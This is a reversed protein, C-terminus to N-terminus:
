ALLLHCHCVSISFVGVHVVSLLMMVASNMQLVIWDMLFDCVDMLLFDVVKIMQVVASCRQLITESHCGIPM